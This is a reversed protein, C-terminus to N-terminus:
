ETEQAEPKPWPMPKGTELLTKLSSLIFPWGGAVNAYTQNEEQFGSHTVTLACMEEGIPEISYSVTTEPDKSGAFNFTHTLTKPAELKTITGSIMEQEGGYSIKGGQKLELTHIPALYYQNVTDKQTLANWVTKAPKAIFTTYSFEPKVPEAQLPLCLCALLIFAIRM